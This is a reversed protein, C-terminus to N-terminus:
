PKALTGVFDFVQPNVLIRKAMAQIDEQTVESLYKESQGLSYRYGLGYLEDTVCLAGRSELPEVQDKYAYRLQAVAEKFEVETILRTQLDKIQDFVIKKVDEKSKQNTLAYILYHGPEIGVQSSAHVMYVYGKDRLLNHLRGGPYNAGSLVTDMLDLVILDKPTAYNLGDYGILVGVVDQPITFVQASSTKHLPRALPTFANGSIPKIHAFAKELKSLAEAEDFQGVVSIVVDVSSFLSQYYENVNKLTLKSVTDAEGLFSSGYPHGQYFSQKFQYMAYRMWDDKRSSISKLMQRRTEEVDESDFEAHLLTELFVPFLEKFDESLTDLSYYLTNNGLSASLDAGQDEILNRIQKKSYKKSGKGLLDSVMYALGQTEPRDTRIGGTVFVKAFVKPLASNQEFIVRIGNSLTVMRPGVEAPATATVSATPVIESKPTMMTVVLRQPTLYQKSVREVDALSVAKFHILYDEFFHASHGYMFGLGFRSVKDEITSISFIDEAVKQKKARIVLSKDLRGHQIEDIIRFVEAQAKDRNAEDLELTIEFYGTSTSPTYSSARVSYALQTDEVLRRHLISDEGNSLIFELLDLPYLDASFLDVTPFRFSLYTVSTDGVGESFRSTFPLPEPTYVHLPSSSEVIKGFTSQIQGMVKDQDFAGGIVLVMNSPVYRSHYYDLLQERTVKKFNDLYGIVPYRLPSIKYFNDSCLQYFQRGVNADSKEIERTIVERERAFESQKFDCFFMWEYVINIATSLEEPVTNLFYSTHDLTTYANYAGGLTAILRKYEEEPRKSTSGGAVLHELYHSLGSGLHPAEDISGAKVFTRVSVLSSSPDDVLVITLGNDLRKTVMNLSWLSGSFLFFFAFIWFGWQRMM